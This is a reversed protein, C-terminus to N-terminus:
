LGKVLRVRDERKIQIQQQKSIAKSDQQYGRTLSISAIIAVLLLVGALEFPYLYHTYLQQGLAQTNDAINGSVGTAMAPHRHSLIIDVQSLLAYGMLALWLVVVSVPLLRRWRTIRTTQQPIASPLTMIVFLFLTM